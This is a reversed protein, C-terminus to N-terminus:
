PRAAVAADAAAKKAMLEERRGILEPPLRDRPDPETGKMSDLVALAAAPDAGAARQRLYALQDGGDFRAHMLSGMVGQMLVEEVPVGGREALAAMAEYLKDPLDLTVTM